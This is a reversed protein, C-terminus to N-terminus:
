FQFYLFESVRKMNILTLTFIFVIVVSWALRPQWLLPLGCKRAAVHQLVPDHERMLEQSSPVFWVILHLAILWYLETTGNIPGNITFSAGHEALWTGGAGAAAQWRQPLSFGNQGAMSSLMSLASTLNEARFFVWAVVVALYTTLVSATVSLPRLVPPLSFRSSVIERWFNNIMLFLGHLGGWIVYTWGAGHWLGGLLMTISLNLYRRGPGKRNGGLPIYLYDRLWRSLTMHWQRWFNVISTAKYPSNFNAPLVVGFMRALGIAMDSYGSFDFYIQMSYSLAGVWAHYFSVIDGQATANFVPTSYTAINDALMVKKFLGMAFITFGITLHSPRFVCADKRAFQPMIERHYLVPGAILQPFFSEFLAFQVIGAERVKGKYVDVLYAIETFTYFSIGIPLIIDHLALDIGTARSLNVTVFMGYKFYALTALNGVIGFILLSKSPEGNHAQRGLVRGLSYNYTISAILLVVYAPKWWGYYFLSTLVLWVSAASRSKRGLVYYVALTIPLFALIFEYSNFLM